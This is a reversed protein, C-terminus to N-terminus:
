CVDAMEKLEELSYNESWSVIRTPEWDVMYPTKVLIFAERWSANPHYWEVVAIDACGVSAKFALLDYWRPEEGEQLQITKWVKDKVERRVFM